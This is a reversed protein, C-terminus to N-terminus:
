KEDKKPLLNELFKIKTRIKQRQIASEVRGKEKKLNRLAKKFESLTIYGGFQKKPFVEREMSILEERTLKGAGKIREPAKKELFKRLERRHVYRRSGFLPSSSPKHQIFGERGKPKGSATSFRELLTKTAM